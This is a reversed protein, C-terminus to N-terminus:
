VSVKSLYYEQAEYYFHPNGDTTDVWFEGNNTSGSAKTPLILTAADDLEFTGGAFALKNASHTLTIDGNNFNIVAGSMLLKLGTDDIEALKTGALGRVIWGNDKASWFINAKGM